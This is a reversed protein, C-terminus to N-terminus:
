SSLFRKTLKFYEQTAKSLFNRLEGVSYVHRALGAANSVYCIWVIIYPSEILAYEGDNHPHILEINGCPTVFLKCADM